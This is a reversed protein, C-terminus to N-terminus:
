FFIKASHRGSLASPLSIVFFIFFDKGLASRAPCEAFFNNFFDKGLAEGAPREAFFNQFFNFFDKGLAESMASPLAHALAVLTTVTVKRQRTGLNCEAFVKGLARYFASSLSNKASPNKVPHEKGLAARPLPKASPLTAKASHMLCEAFRRFGITIRDLMLKRDSM